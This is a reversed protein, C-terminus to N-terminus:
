GVNQDIQSKHTLQAWIYKAAAVYAAGGFSKANNWAEESPISFGGKDQVYVVIGDHNRGECVFVRRNACVTHYESFDDDKANYKEFSTCSIVFGQERGNRYTDVYGNIMAGYMDNFVSLVAEAKCYSKRLGM